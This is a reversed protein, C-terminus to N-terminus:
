TLIVGALKLDRQDTIKFNDPDGPVVVIKGGLAEVLSADDTGEPRSEHAQRLLEARFAQPTQVTVLGDRDITGGERRRVTDTVELGPVAGDAGDRVASIVAQFLARTALPRAGDHVVIIEAHDPVSALGNRVSQSRTPGGAVVTSAGPELRDAFEPPVVLVIGEVFPRAGQRAWDLVRRGQLVEYQKYGGFRSGAGAAVVVAWVGVQDIAV